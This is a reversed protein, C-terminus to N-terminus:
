PGDDKIGDDIWVGALTYIAAWDVPCKSSIIKLNM